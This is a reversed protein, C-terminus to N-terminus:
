MAEIRSPAGISRGVPGISNAAAPPRSVSNMDRPRMQFCLRLSRLVRPASQCMTCVKTPLRSIMTVASTISNM